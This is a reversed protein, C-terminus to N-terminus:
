WGTGCTCKSATMPCWPMGSSCELVNAVARALDEDARKLSGPLRVKLEEAVSKVGFVRAAAREAALKKIYSDVHGSLTVVGDKVSVGIEAPRLTPEWKLENMVDQQLEADTKMTKVEGQEFERFVGLLLAIELNHIIPHSRRAVLCQM